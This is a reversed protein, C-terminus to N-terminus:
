SCSSHARPLCNGHFMAVKWVKKRAVRVNFTTQSSFCFSLAAQFNSHSEESNFDSNGEEIRARTGGCLRTKFDSKLLIQRMEERHPGTILVM